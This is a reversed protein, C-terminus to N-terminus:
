ACVLLITSDHFGLFRTVVFSGIVLRVVFPDNPWRRWRGIFLSTSQRRLIHRLAWFSKMVVNRVSGHSYVGWSHVSSHIRAVIRGGERVLRKCICLRSSYIHCCTIIHQSVLIKRKRKDIKTSKINRKTKKKKKKEKISSSSTHSQPWMVYWM